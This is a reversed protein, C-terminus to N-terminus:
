HRHSRRVLTWTTAISCTSPSGTRACCIRVQAVWPRGSTPWTMATFQELLGFDDSKEPYGTGDGITVSSLDGSNWIITAYTDIIQDTNSKVRSALSNGVASSPGLVDYRDILEGLGLVDFASDFFLQAPGGRDDTDDVYLIDGGRNYGGAPLITFECPSAAAEEIDSTINDEGQGDLTRHWYNENGNGSAGDVDAGFFYWITDGPVFLADNLDVCYRDPSHNGSAYFVSDMGFVEWTNSTADMWTGLYPWRPGPKGPRADASGLGPGSKPANSNQVRAFLWASPSAGAPSRVPWITVPISDGPLIGPSGSPLVDLAADARATGTLTGDEAFNDQFLEIHRVTYRPGVTNVRVLRIDDFLPGHSRCLGPSGYINCWIECADFAGVAIQLEEAGGVLSGVQFRATLWDKEGGYYVFSLREWGNPCGDNYSRIRWQYFVLDDLDLDRYVRFSLIYEDGSGINAFRPSWIQNYIYLGDENGFPVVGQWPVPDPRCNIYPANAPDDFFGWIFDTDFQCPGEQLVDVGPYLAAFDGFGPPAKGTWIGATHGGAPASEFDEVDSFAATGSSWTNVVIDDVLIAGDTDWLGDEDSWAGDSVFVFRVRVNSAGPSNVTFNETIFPTTGLSDYANPLGAGGDNLPFELWTEGDDFTYEVRTYDLEDESDWFVKYSIALSDGVIPDSELSQEWGNGYGPLSTYNCYATATSADVGCWMSQLGSLPVLNGYDGGDLEVGDAVHFYVGPQATLDVSTYGMPGPSDFTAYHLVFTDAVSASQQPTRYKAALDPPLPANPQPPSEFQLPQKSIEKSSAITCISVLMFVVLLCVATKM